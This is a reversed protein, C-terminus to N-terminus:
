LLEHRQVLVWGKSIKWATRFVHGILSLWAVIPRSRQAYFFGQYTSQTECLYLLAHIRQELPHHPRKRSLAAAIAEVDLKKKVARDTTACAASSGLTRVFAQYRAVILESPPFGFISQHLHQVEADPSAPSLNSM